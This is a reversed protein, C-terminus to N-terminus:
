LQFITFFDKDKLGYSHFLVYSLLSLEAELKLKINYIRRFVTGPIIKVLSFGM